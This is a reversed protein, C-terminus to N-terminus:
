FALGKEREKDDSPGLEKREAAGRFCGHLAYGWSLVLVLSGVLWASSDVLWAWTANQDLFARYQRVARTAAYGDEGAYGDECLSLATRNAGPPSLWTAGRGRM